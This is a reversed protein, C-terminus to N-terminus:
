RRKSQPDYLFYWKEDGTAITGLLSPDKDVASFLDGVMEMQIEKQDENFMHPIISQCVTGCFLIKLTKLSVPLRSVDLPKLVKGAKESIDIGRLFM